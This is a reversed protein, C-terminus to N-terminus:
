GNRAAEQLERLRKETFVDSVAKGKPLSQAVLQLWRAKWAMDASQSGYFQEAARLEDRGANGLAKGGPLPFMLLTGKALQVVRASQDVNSKPAATQVPQRWAKKRAQISHQRVADYCAGSLLPDTLADRLAQDSRVAAELLRAAQQVDGKAKGMAAKAAEAITDTEKIALAPM